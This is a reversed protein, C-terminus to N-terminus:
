EIRDLLWSDSFESYQEKIRDRLQVAEAKNDFTAAVVRYMGKENRALFTSYGRARMRDKLSDANTKNVFSGIVVSYQKIGSGELATVKERQFTYAPTSVVPTSSSSPSSYYTPSDTPNNEVSAFLKDKEKQQEQERQAAKAKEYVARYNSEKPKCANFSLLFAFALLVICYNKKM